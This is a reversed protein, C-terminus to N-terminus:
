CGPRALLMVWINGPARALAFEQAERALMNKRHGRSAEWAAMVSTLDPQGKAINEAVFCWGYGAARAREGTSSGDAGAHSFYGKAAMDDAHAAAARQLAPSHALPARGKESRLANLARAADEPEAAGGALPLACLLALLAARFRM